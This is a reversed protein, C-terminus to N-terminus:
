LAFALAAVTVLVLSLSLKTTTAAGPFALPSGTPGPSTSGTAGAAGAASGVAPLASPQQNSNDGSGSDDADVQAFNACTIRTTNGFHFVFSRNGFFAQDGEKLSTFPDLYEAQFPDQTVKGHKGSLDGVQCTQPASADCPPQEGRNFPDLHALTKTCNGDNPVPQAHLHYLFPGGEAPVNDFRVTFKVGNGDKPAQARISGKVNGNLSGQKFFADNPLTAEYAVDTPNGSIRPADQTAQAAVLAASLSATVIAAARM